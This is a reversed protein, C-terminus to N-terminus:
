SVFTACKSSPTANTADAHYLARVPIDFIMEVNSKTLGIGRPATRELM